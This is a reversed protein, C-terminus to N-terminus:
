FVIALRASAVKPFPIAVKKRLTQIVLTEGDFSLLKGEFEKDGDVPEYTTVFVQKQLAREYDTLKKLPREAGPSSVELFYADPIPDKEDLKESLVESIRGCDDIDIGGEKDVYVRLFKNSGEKVFEVDVLEFGEADLFPQILETIVDKIPQAM